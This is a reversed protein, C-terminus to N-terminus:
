HPGGEFFKLEESFDLEPHAAALQRCKEAQRALFQRHAESGPHLPRHEMARRLNELERCLGITPADCHSLLFHEWIYQIAAPAPHSMDEAYFRYDRLDDILLEYAPFYHLRPFLRRLRELALLLTAKSLNSEVLGDRLYRVPSVTGIIELDPLSEFLRTFVPELAAVVEEVELRVRSFMSAPMKHCNAVVRGSDKLKFVHATGFTLILRRSKKLFVSAHSLAEDIRGLAITPDPHSFSGHHDFSHWLGDHAVLDALEYPRPDLLRELCNAVSVPNYLIGMPNLAVPFKLRQMRKGIEEAFCSGICSVPTHHDIRFPAPPVTLTTRFRDM